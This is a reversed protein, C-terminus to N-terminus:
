RILTFSSTRKIPARGEERLEVVALYTGLPAAAGGIGGNWGEFPSDTQFLRKGWRDFIELQYTLGELLSVRPRYEITFGEPIFGTPFYVRPSRLACSPATRWQFRGEGREFVAPVVVETVLQYCVERVNVETVDHVYTLLTDTDLLSRSGTAEEFRLSWETPIGTAVIPLTWNVDVVVPSLEQARVIAPRAGASERTVGCADTARVLALADSWDFDAGLDLEVIPAPSSRAGPDVDGSAVVSSGRRVEWSINEYQAVTNWRWRMAWTGSEYTLQVIEVLDDSVVRQAGFDVPLSTTSGGQDDIYTVRVSYSTDPNLDPIVLLSDPNSFRITDTTGRITRRAVFAETFPRPWPAPLQRTLRTEGVCGDREAALTISSYPTADFSSRGCADVSGLYYIAGAMETQTLMELYTEDQVEDLLVLGADTERYVQVGVVRPDNPFTWSLRTGLVTYDITEIRPVPLPETNITDSTNSRDPTCAYIAVVYFAQFRDAEAVTLWYFEEGPQVTTIQTYPGAEIEAAYVAIGTLPGCPDVPDAWTLTDGSLCAIVPATPQALASPLAVKTLVGLFLLFPLVHRM